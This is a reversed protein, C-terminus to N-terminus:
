KFEANFLYIPVTGPGQEEPTPAPKEMVRTLSARLRTLVGRGSAGDVTLRFKVGLIEQVVAEAPLPIGTPQEHFYAVPMGDGDPAIVGSVAKGCNLLVQGAAIGRDKAFTELSEAIRDGEEFAIVFVRGLRGEAVKM